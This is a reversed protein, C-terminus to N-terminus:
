ISSLDIEGTFQFWGDKYLMVFDGHYKALITKINTLGFGHLQPNEKSTKITDAVIEVPATTNRISFFFTQEQLIRVQILKEGHYKACAEIANDLLNSLLVVMDTADLPLTSLDNVEFSIDIGLHVAESAKTNFLADLIPHHCNVLFIRDTHQSSLSSLYNQAADYYKAGLLEEVTRLHARFDHVARRQSAYLECASNMSKSQLNLQQTLALLQQHNQNARESKELLFLTAFNAFFVLVCCIFIFTESVEKGTTLYLLLVLTAFSSIPFIFYLLAHFLTTNHKERFLFYSSFFKHFLFILSFAIFYYFVTYIIFPLKELRFREVSVGLISATLLGTGFSLLYILAYSILSLSFLLVPSTKTYLIRCFLFTLFLLVIIKLAQNRDFFLSISCVIISSSLSYGLIGFWFRSDNWRRPIFTDLFLFLCFSDLATYLCTLLYEM